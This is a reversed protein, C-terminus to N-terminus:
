TAEDENGKGSTMSAHLHAGEDVLVGALLEQHIRPVVVLARPPQQVVNVLGDDRVEQAAGAQHPVRGCSVQPYRPWWCGYRFASTM